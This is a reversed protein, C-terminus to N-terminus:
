DLKSLAWGRDLRLSDILALRFASNHEETIQRFCRRWTAVDENESVLSDFFHNVGADAAEQLKSESDVVLDTVGAAVIGTGVGWLMAELEGLVSHNGNVDYAFEKRAAQHAAEGFVTGSVFSATKDAIVAWMATGIQDSTTTLSGTIVSLDISSRPLIAGDFASDIGFVVLAEHDIRTLEQHLVDSNKKLFADIADVALVEVEFQRHVWERHGSPDTVSSFRSGMSQMSEIYATTDVERRISRLREEVAVAIDNAQKRRLQEVKKIPSV